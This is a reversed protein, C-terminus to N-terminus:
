LEEKLRPCHRGFRLSFVVKWKKVITECSSRKAGVSPGVVGIHVDRVTAKEALRGQQRTYWGFGRLTLAHPGEREGTESKMVIERCTVAQGCLLEWKPPGDAVGGRSM